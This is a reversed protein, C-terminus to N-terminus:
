FDPHSYNHLSNNGAMLQAPNSMWTKVKFTMPTSYVCM